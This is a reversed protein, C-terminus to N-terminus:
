GTPPSGRNSWRAQAAKRARSTTESEAPELTKKPMASLHPINLAAAHKALTARHARVEALLPNPRLVGAKTEHIEAEAGSLASELEALEDSTHCWQELHMLEGPTLDFEKVVALWLRRSAATLGKPTPPLNAAKMIMELDNKQM